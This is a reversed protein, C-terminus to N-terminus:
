SAFKKLFSLAANKEADKKSVGEGSIPGLHAVKVRVKYVPRHETGQKSIMEYIPPEKWKEQAWEQLKSKPDRPPPANSQIFPNWYKRVFDQSPILGGDLYIAGILAEVADGLVRYDTLDTGSAVHLEKELHINRAVCACTEAQVLFAHRHALDGEPEQDFKAYLWEAICLNLVRDGLFELRDFHRKEPSKTSHLSSHRLAETLLSADRFAYGVYNQFSKSVKM